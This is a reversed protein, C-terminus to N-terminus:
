HGIAHLSDGLQASSLAVDRHGDLRAVRDCQDLVMARDAVCCVVAGAKAAGLEVQNLTSKAGVDRDGAILM